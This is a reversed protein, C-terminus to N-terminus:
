VYGGYGAAANEKYESIYAPWANQSATSHRRGLSDYDAAIFYSVRRAFSKEKKTAAPIEKSISSVESGGGFSLLYPDYDWL